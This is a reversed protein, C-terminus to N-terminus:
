KKILSLAFTISLSILAVIGLLVSSITSLTPELAIPAISGQILLVIVVIALLAIIVHARALEQRVEGIKQKSLKKLIPKM